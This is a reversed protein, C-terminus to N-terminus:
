NQLVILKLLLTVNIVCSTLCFCHIHYLYYNNLDLQNNLSPRDQPNNNLSKAKLSKCLRTKEPANITIKWEFNHEPFDELHKTPESDNQPDGYM